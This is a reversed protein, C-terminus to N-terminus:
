FIPLVISYYIIGWMGELGVIKLPDLYYNGLLKEEVIFLGAAFLQSILLLVIGLVSTSSDAGGSPYVVSAIGVLVIGFTITILSAYHHIYQRRKLFIMAGAAVFLVVAGRLMQYVSAAVQTLAIFMLTSGCFDFAAPIALLAPNINTKLKVESAAKTGPSLM